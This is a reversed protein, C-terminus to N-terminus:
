ISNFIYIALDYKTSLAGNIGNEITYKQHVMILKLRLLCHLGLDICFTDDSLPRCRKSSLCHSGFIEKISNTNPKIMLM